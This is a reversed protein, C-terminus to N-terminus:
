ARGHQRQATAAFAARRDAGVDVAARLRAELEDLGITRRIQMTPRDARDNFVLSVGPDDDGEAEAKRVSLTTEYARGPRLGYAEYYVPAADGKAYANLANLMVPIGRNDWRLGGTERELLLDSMGLAGRESGLAVMGLNQATGARQDAQRAADGVAHALRALIFRVAAEHGPETVTDQGRDLDPLHGVVHKAQRALGAAAGLARLQEGIVAGDAM